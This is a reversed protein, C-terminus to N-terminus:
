LTDENSDTVQEGPIYLDRVKKGDQFQHAWPETGGYTWKPNPISYNGKKVENVAEKWNKM